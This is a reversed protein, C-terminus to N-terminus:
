LPTEMPFPCQSLSRSFPRIAGPITAIGGRHDGAWSGRAIPAWRTEVHITNERCSKSEHITPPPSRKSPLVVGLPLAWEEAARLRTYGFELAGILPTGARPM